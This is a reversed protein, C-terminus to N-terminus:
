SFLFWRRPAPYCLTLITCGATGSVLSIVAQGRSDPDAVMIDGTEHVYRSGTATGALIVIMLRARNQMTFSVGPDLRFLRLKQSCVGSQMRLTIEAQGPATRRWDKHANCSGMLMKKLACPVNELPHQAHTKADACPQEDKAASIRAMVAALCDDKVAVPELDNVIKGGVAEFQAMKRRAANNLSVHAAAILGEAPGLTGSAYHLLLMEITFIDM